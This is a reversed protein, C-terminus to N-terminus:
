KLPSKETIANKGDQTQLFSKMSLVELMKKVGTMVEYNFNKSSINAIYYRYRQYKEYGTKFHDDMDKLLCKLISDELSVISKTLYDPNNIAEQCANINSLTIMRFYKIDTKADIENKLSDRINELFLRYKDETHNKIKEDIGELFRTNDVNSGMFYKKTNLLSTTEKNYREKFLKDNNLVESVEKYESTLDDLPAGKSKAYLSVINQHEGLISQFDDKSFNDMGFLVLQMNTYIKKFTGNGYKSDILKYAQYLFTDDDPMMAWNSMFDHGLMIELKFYIYKYIRYQINNSKEFQKQEKNYNFPITYFAAMNKGVHREERMTNGERLCKTFHGRNLIYWPLEFGQQNVHTLEHILTKMMLPIRQKVTEDFLISVEKTINNTQGGMTCYYQPEDSTVVYRGEADKNYGIPVVIGNTPIIKKLFDEDDNIDRIITLKKISKLINIYRKVFVNYDVIESDFNSYEEYYYRMSRFTMLIYECVDEEYKETKLYLHLDKLVLEDEIM